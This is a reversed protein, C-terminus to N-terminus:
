EKYKKLCTYTVNKGLGAISKMLIRHFKLCVAHLVKLFSGFTYIPFSTIVRFSRVYFKRNRKKCPSWLLTDSSPGKQELGASSTM